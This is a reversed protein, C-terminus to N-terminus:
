ILTNFLPRSQLFQPLRPFRECLEQLLGSFLTYLFRNNVPMSIPLPDSWASQVGNEDKVKVRIEYSGEKTWTHTAQGTEGSAVSGIWDSYSGDGWDFLYYIEDGDPDTTSATYTHEKNIKGNTPGALDTPVVPAQSEVAVVLSPDIFPQWEEVTKYDVGDMGAFIYNTIASTWMEGLTKAGEARYAKFMNLAMKEVLGKTADDSIYAWGLGTAGFSGIGGGNPNAVWAWSYCNEFENYKSVSCAGTIVIPLKDGNTRDLVKNYDYRGAPTPVWVFKSSNHPHTAYVKPNGHGSFDIFGAGSEVASNISAIGSPVVGNLVGNSVWLRTPIFGDMVKFVEENVFEGENVGSEDGYANTFSDGGVGIINTFWSKTYARNTEYTIIKDVATTVQAENICALRGLYVDPYLDVEDTLQQSGWQYEGFLNNENSDWSSFNFTDNYIDAYYLDTVFLEDDEENAVVHTTRSPFKGDGGVLLVYKIDWQEIANKIFYKIQEAEDRGQVTFFDGNYIEDLTVLTSNVGRNNKHSILSTLEDSFEAPTLVILDYKEQASTPLHSRETYKIDVDFFETYSIKQELPHYQVPYFQVKVIVKRTDKIIGMGVDYDYWIDLARYENKMSSRTSVIQQPNSMLVPTPSVALPKSVSKMHISQPTCVVNEIHTGVPFTFTQVKMPVMYHDKKIFFESTEALVISTTDESLHLQPKSFSVIALLKQDADDSLAVAQFGSLILSCFIIIFVIKKM